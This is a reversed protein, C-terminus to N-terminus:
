KKGGGTVFPISHGCVCTLRLQNSIDKKAIIIEAFFSESGCVSCSINKIREVDSVKM